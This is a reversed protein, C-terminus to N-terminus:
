PRVTLLGRARALAGHVVDFTGRFQPFVWDDMGERIPDIWLEAPILSVGGGLIIRRPALLTVAASLAETLAARARALVRNALPDGKQAATSVDLGTVAETGGPHQRLLSPEGTETLWRRACRAIGWGSAAHELKTPPEGAPHVWLHGIETAGGGSGRYIRGDIILGGGIGSGVTIYLIPSHGIGAGALAEGLGATDADNQLAVRDVGLEERVWQNISFGTWGEIQHSELV